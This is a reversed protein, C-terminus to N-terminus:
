LLLDYIRRVAYGLPSEHEAANQEMDQHFLERFPEFDHKWHEYGEWLKPNRLSCLFSGRCKQSSRQCLEGDLAFVTTPRSKHGGTGGEWGDTCANKIISSMSLNEGALDKFETTSGSLDVIYAYTKGDNSIPWSEMVETVNIVGDVWVKKSIQVRNAALYM